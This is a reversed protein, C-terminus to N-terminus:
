FKRILLFSACIREITNINPLLIKCSRLYDMLALALTVGKDTGKAIEDLFQIAKRYHNAGFPVFGFIFQLESLHERRTQERKGYSEWYVPDIGLQNAVLELLPDFPKEGFGLIIGPYRMYCLLIPTDGANGVFGV